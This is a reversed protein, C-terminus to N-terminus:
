KKKKKKNEIREGIFSFCFVGAFFLLVLLSIDRGSRDGTTAKAKTYAQTTPEPSREKVLLKLTTEEQKQTTAETTETALVTTPQAVTNLTYPEPVHVNGKEEVTTTELTQTVTTVETTTETTQSITEIEATTTESATESTETPTSGREFLLQSVSEGKENEIKINCALSSTGENESVNFTLIYVGKQTDDAYVNYKYEGPTDFDLRIFGTDEGTISIQGEKPAPAQELPEIDILFPEEGVGETISVPIEAAVGTYTEEAKTVVTFLCFAFFLFAINRINKM